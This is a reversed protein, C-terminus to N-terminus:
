KPMWLRSQSSKSRNPCEINGRYPEMQFGTWLRAYEMIDKNSYTQIPNQSEDLVLTGDNNLMYLGISFLQMIERAYNEDAFGLRKKTNWVYEASESNLFSLMEAM